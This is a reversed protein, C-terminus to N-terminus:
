SNLTIERVGRCLTGSEGHVGMHVGLSPFPAITVNHGCRTVNYKIFVIYFQYIEIGFYFTSASYKIECDNLQKWTM